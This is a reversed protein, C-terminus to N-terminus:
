QLAAVAPMMAHEGALAMQNALLGIMVFGPKLAHLLCAAVAEAVALAAPRALAPLLLALLAPEARPPSITKLKVSM